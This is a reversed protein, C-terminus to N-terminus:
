VMLLYKKLIKMLKMIQLNLKIIMSNELPHPCNYGVYEIVSKNDERIFINYFLAQILNGLTHKENIIKIDYMNESNKVYDFTFTDDTVKSIINQIKNDLITIAKYFLYEPSTLCESEISYEFYNPEDFKNKHFYRARDLNNFDNIFSEKEEKTPNDKELKDLRKKLEKEAKKEDVINYYVCQSVYGFGSYNQAKDKTARMEINIEDGEKNNILNPKLKTILIHDGSYKNKPFIRKTFKDDYKKNKDDFIQIDDTTVSMITNTDNKKKLVFKYNNEDFDLIENVNFNLPLMSLRQQIIENHLPCTNVLIKIKQEDGTNYPKYEFAVNEIEALIVRRISNLISVDVDKVKFIIKNDKKIFDGQFSSM